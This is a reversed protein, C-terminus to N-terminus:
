KALMLQPILDHVQVRDSRGHGIRMLRILLDRLARGGVDIGGKLAIWREIDAAPIKLADELATATLSRLVPANPMHFSVRVIGRGDLAEALAPYGLIDVLNEADYEFRPKDSEPGTRFRHIMGSRLDVYATDEDAILHSEIPGADPVTLEGLVTYGEALDRWYWQAPKVRVVLLTHM